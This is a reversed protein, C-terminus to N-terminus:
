GLYYICASDKIMEKIEEESLGSMVIGDDDFVVEGTKISRCAVQQFYMGKEQGFTKRIIQHVICLPHLIARRRQSRKLYVDVINRFYEPFSGNNRRKIEEIVNSMPCSKLIYVDGDKVSEGELEELSKVEGALEFGTNELVNILNNVDLGEKLIEMVFDASLKDSLYPM